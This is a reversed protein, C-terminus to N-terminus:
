VHLVLPYKQPLEKDIQPPLYMKAKLKRLIKRKKKNVLSPEKYTDDYVPIDFKEITPMAMESVLTKLSDKNDLLKIVFRNQTSNTSNTESDELEPTPQTRVLFTGPVEPGLCDLVYHKLSFVLFFTWINVLLDICLAHVYYACSIIEVSRSSMTIRNFNCNRGNVEHNPIECTICQIGRPKEPSTAAKWKSSVSFLHRESPRGEPTGLFYSFIPKLFSTM